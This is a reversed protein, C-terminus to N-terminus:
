RSKKWGYYYCITWHIRQVLKCIIEVKKGDTTTVQQEIFALLLLMNNLSHAWSIQMNDGSKKWRYYYCITWHFREVLKCIIEVKKEMPLLLKNNLSLWSYTYQIIKHRRNRIYEAKRKRKWTAIGINRINRINRYTRLLLMNNLAPNEGM